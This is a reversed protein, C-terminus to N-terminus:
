IKVRRDAKKRFKHPPARSIDTDSLQEDVYKTTGFMRQWTLHERRHNKIGRNEEDKTTTRKKSCQFSFLITKRYTTNSPDPDLKKKM